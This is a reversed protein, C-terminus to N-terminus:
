NMYAIVGDNASLTDRVVCGFDWFAANIFSRNQELSDKDCMHPNLTNDDWNPGNETLYSEFM